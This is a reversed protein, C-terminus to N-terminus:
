FGTSNPQFETSETDSDLLHIAVSSSIYLTVQSQLFFVCQLINTCCTKCKMHLIKCPCQLLINYRLNGISETLCQLLFAFIFTKGSGCKGVYTCFGLAYGCFYTDSFVRIVGYKVWDSMNWQNGWFIVCWQALMISMISFFLLQLSNQSAITNLLKKIDQHNKVFFSCSKLVHGRLKRDTAWFM